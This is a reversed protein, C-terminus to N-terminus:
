FRTPPAAETGEWSVLAGDRLAWHRWGDTFSVMNTSSSSAALGTSTQQVTDGPTNSPHECEVATGMVDGIQAKLAALEHGFAPSQGAECYPARVASQDTGAAQVTAPQTAASSPLARIGLLTAVRSIASLDGGIRHAAWWFTAARAALVVFLYLLEASGGRSKRAPHRNLYAM